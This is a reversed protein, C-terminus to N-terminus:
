VLLNALREHRETSEELIEGVTAGDILGPSFEQAQSLWWRPCIAHNIRTHAIAKRLATVQEEPRLCRSGEPISAATDCYIEPLGWKRMLASGVAYFDLGYLDVALQYRSTTAADPALRLGRVFDDGQAHILALEGLNHLVGMAIAEGDLEVDDAEAIVDLTAAVAVGYRFFDAMTVQSCNFGTFTERLASTTLLSTVAHRGIVGVAIHASTVEQGMSYRPSNVYRLLEALLAPSTSILDAMQPITTNDDEVLEHLRLVVEPFVPLTDLVDTTSEKQQAASAM